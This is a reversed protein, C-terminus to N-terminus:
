LEVCNLAQSQTLWTASFPFNELHDHQKFTMKLKGVRAGMSILQLPNLLPVKFLFPHSAPVEALNASQLSLIM